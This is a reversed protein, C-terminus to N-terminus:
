LQAAILSDVREGPTPRGILCESFPLWGGVRLGRRRAEAALKEVATVAREAREAQRQAEDRADRSRLFGVLSGIAGLVAVVASIWAPWDGLGMAPM